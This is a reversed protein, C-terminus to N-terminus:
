QLLKQRRPPAATACTAASAAMTYGAMAGNRQPMVKQKRQSVTATSVHTHDTM